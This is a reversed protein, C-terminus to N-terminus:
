HMNLCFLLTVSVTGKNTGHENYFNDVNFRDAPMKKQLDKKAVINEWLQSPNSAGPVRCALGVIVVPDSSTSPPSSSVSSSTDVDEIDSAHVSSASSSISM